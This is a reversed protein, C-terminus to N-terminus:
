SVQWPEGNLRAPLKTEGAGLDKCNWLSERFSSAIVTEKLATM